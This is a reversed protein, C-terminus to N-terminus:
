SEPEPATKMAATFDRDMVTKRGATGAHTIARDCLERLHKSLVEIVGDSTSMGSRAKVYSKLKSVVILVEKPVGEDSLGVIRRGKEGEESMAKAEREEVQRREEAEEALESQYAERTPAKATEAWADRHRMMPVHADWCPVSCFYLGTRKRNCTSVSCRFYDAAFAIPRKCESCLKYHQSTEASASLAPSGKM